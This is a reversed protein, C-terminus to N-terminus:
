FKKKFKYTYTFPVSFASIGQYRALNMDLRIGASLSGLDNPLSYSTRPYLTLCTSDSDGLMTRVKFNFAFDLEPTANYTLRLQSYFPVAGETFEDTRKAKWTGNSKQKYKVITSGRSITATETTVTGDNNNYEIQGIYEDNLGSIIDAYVGLGISGFYYGGTAGLAYKTKQKKYKYIDLGTEDDSRTVRSEPLFDSGTFNYYFGLNLVANQISTLGAFAAFKRTDHSLDHATFGLDFLDEVGLNIGADLAYEFSDTDTSNGSSGSNSGTGSGDSDGSDSVPAFTIGFATKLYLLNNSWFNGTSASNDQENEDKGANNFQPNGAGQKASQRKGFHWDSTIGGAFGTFYFAASDNGFYEEHGLSDTLLRGYKTTDDQAALYASPIALHKFFSTGALLGIQPIPTFHVFGSPAFVFNPIADDTYSTRAALGTNADDGNSETSGTQFAAELRLRGTILSSKYDAQLQDGLAFINSTSLDENIDTQRQTTFLDYNGLADQDAGFINRITLKQAALNVPCLLIPILAFLPTKNKFLKNILCNTKKTKM